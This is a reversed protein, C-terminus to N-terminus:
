KLDIKAQWSKEGYGYCNKLEHSEYEMSEDHSCNNCKRIERVKYVAYIDMGSKYGHSCPFSEDHEYERTVHEEIAGSMCSPCLDSSIRDKALVPTIAVSLFLTTSLLSAAARRVAKKMRIEKRRDLTSCTSGLDSSLVDNYFPIPWGADEIDNYCLACFILCFYFSKAIGEGTFSLVTCFFLGGLFKKRLPKM